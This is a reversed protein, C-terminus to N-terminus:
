ASLSVATDHVHELRAAVYAGFGAVGARIQADTMASFALRVRRNQSGDLAFFSMPMVIVGHQTACETVAQAGFEFPLEVTLFFGGAPRNWTITAPEGVSVGAFTAALADLMSDRNARYHEVMPAVWRRLSGGEGLLLGAAMAQTLPSTNVTVFSKRQVLQEWLAVRAAREGFLTDPLIASGTRLAPSLTKSFTTLFIVCGAEDLAALPPVPDGEYRFMGYANDELVVIRHRVCAELVARREDLALVRGTPNDFDAILYLARARRGERQLQEAAVDIASALSQEQPLAHLAVRQDAAVGTMGIYTPNCVLLVDTPQPCLAPLCLAMAEQCGATILVREAHAPVGYDARVHDAVCAGIIGATRGYQLLLTRVEAASGTHLALQEFRHLAELLASPALRDFYRETPRGAALSVAAPFRNSVENLFNMVEPQATTM